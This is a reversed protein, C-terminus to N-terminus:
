IRGIRHSIQDPATLEMISLADLPAGPKRM